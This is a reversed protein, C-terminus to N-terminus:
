SSWKSSDMLWSELATATRSLKPETRGAPPRHASLMPVSDASSSPSSPFMANKSSATGASSFSDLKPIDGGQQPIPHRRLKGDRGWTPETSYGFNAFTANGSFSQHDSGHPRGFSQFSKLKSTTGRRTIDNRPRPPLLLISELTQSDRLGVKSHFMVSTPAQDTDFSSERSLPKGELVESFHMATSKIKQLRPSTSAEESITPPVNAESEVKKRKFTAEILSGQSASHLMSAPQSVANDATAQTMQALARSVLLRAKEVMSDLLANANLHIEISSLGGTKDDQVVSPAFNGSFHFLINLVERLAVANSTALFLSSRVPYPAPHM